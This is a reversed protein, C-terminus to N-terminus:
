NEPIEPILGTNEGGQGEGQVLREDLMPRMRRTVMRWLIDKSEQSLSNMFEIELAEYEEESTAM